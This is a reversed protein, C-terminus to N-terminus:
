QAYGFHGGFDDGLFGGGYLMLFASVLLRINPRKRCFLSKEAIEAKKPLFDGKRCFRDYGADVSTKDSKIALNQGTIV